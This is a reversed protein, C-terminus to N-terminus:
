RRVPVNMWDYPCHRCGNGCCEGRARLSRETLVVYGTSPDVYAPEGAREATRWALQTRPDLQLPPKRPM